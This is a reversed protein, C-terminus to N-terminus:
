SFQAHTRREELYPDVSAPGRLKQLSHMGFAVDHGVVAEVVVVERHKTAPAIPIPLQTLGIPDDLAHETHPGGHEPRRDPDLCSMDHRRRRPPSLCHHRPAAPGDIPDAGRRLM